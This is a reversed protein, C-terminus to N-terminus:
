EAERLQYIPNGAGDFVASWPDRSLSDALNAATEINENVSGPYVAGSVSGDRNSYSLTDGNNLANLLRATWHIKSQPSHAPQEYRPLLYGSEGIFSTDATIPGYLYRYITMDPRKDVTVRAQLNLQAFLGGPILFLAIILKIM